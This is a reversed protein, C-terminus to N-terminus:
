WQRAITEVIKGLADLDKTDIVEGPSHAYRLPWGMAVDVSGYRVFVSGDNGGGTVGYQVPISRERAMTVVRDVYERPATNSNDVARVVFGDGIKADAFRKSELPSDSSVFTDIAFVFDPSRGEKAAQEAFAAAGELGIEERTSWVFTVDRGPLEPGIANAAAILAACGVRDDFSRGNARTGLLERYEKPVTVFDGVAIGLEETEKKSKTGVYVRAPEDMSRSSMPWEFGAKEWGSPLELVGGIGSGDKKHVLVVHGLFYQTYGGGLVEVQLRGDDEIQKVEYGIEDMHAVIAIRPTKAEKKGDGLHLVLNGGADTAVKSRLRPDLRNLVVQRVAEEHRSAGYAVVLAQLVSQSRRADFEGGVRGMPRQVELYAELLKEVQGADEKSAYEAPTVPWLTPVGLEVFRGPLEAGKTYSAIRPTAAAMSVAKIQEKEAVAQLEKAFNQGAETAASPSGLVAGAGPKPAEPVVKGDASQEPRVRGVYIMESPQIETLLRNLGRGGTYQQTVFAITTMGKAKSSKMERILQTLAAIDVHNLAGLGAEGSKGIAMWNTQPVIPDLVDVGAARIEEASKAGLDVYMEDPHNMKPGNVRGPQLHVSLGAFVGNVKKGGRTLVWVPQAFNLADFVGNPAAQPLRQVRLYGDNTIASVVYGPQDMGTAILRHPEGGGFEVWVNGVNDTKPSFEKLERALEKSLEQEYGSIAPMDGPKAPNNAIQAPSVKAVAALFLTALLVRILGKM